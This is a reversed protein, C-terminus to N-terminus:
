KETHFLATGDTTTEPPILKLDEAFCLFIYRNLILQSIRISELRDLNSNSELEKMLMLRTESFLSYFEDELDREIM